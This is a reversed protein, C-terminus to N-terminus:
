QCCWLLTDYHQQFQGRSPRCWGEQQGWAAPRSCLSCCLHDFSEVGIQRIHLCRHNKEPKICVQLYIFEVYKGLPVVEIPRVQAPRSAEWVTQVMVLVGCVKASTAPIAEPLDLAVRTGGPLFAALWGCWSCGRSRSGLRWTSAENEGLGQGSRGSHM